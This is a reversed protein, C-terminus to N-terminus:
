CCLKERPDLARDSRVTARIRTEGDFFFILIGEESVFSSHFNANGIADSVYLEKFAGLIAKENLCEILAEDSISVKEEWIVSPRTDFCASLCACALLGAGARWNM